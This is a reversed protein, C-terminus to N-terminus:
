QLGVPGAAWLGAVLDVHDRRRLMDAEEVPEEGPRRFAGAIRPEIAFEAERRVRDEGIEGLCVVRQHRGAVLPERDSLQKTALEGAGDLLAVADGISRDVQDDPADVVGVADLFDAQRQFM